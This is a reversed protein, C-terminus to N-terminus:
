GLEFFLIALGALVLGIIMPITIPDKFWLWEAFALTIIKFLVFVASAVAINDSEYTKVL